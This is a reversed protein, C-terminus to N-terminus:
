PQSRGSMAQLYDSAHHIADKLTDTATPDVEEQMWRGLGASGWESPYSGAEVRALLRECEEALGRAFSPTWGHRSLDADIPTDRLTEAAERLAGAVRERVEDISLADFEAQLAAEREHYKKLQEDARALRAKLEPSALSRILDDAEQGDVSGL